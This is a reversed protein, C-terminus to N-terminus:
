SCSPPDADTGAAADFAEYYPTPDFVGGRKAGRLALAFPSQKIRLGKRSEYVAVWDRTHCDKLALRAVFQDINASTHWTKAVHGAAMAVVEQANFMEVDTMTGPPRPLVHKRFRRVEDPTWASIGAATEVLVRRISGDPRM